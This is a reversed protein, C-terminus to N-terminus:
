VILSMDSDDEPMSALHGSQFLLCSSFVPIVIHDLVGCITQITNWWTCSYKIQSWSVGSAWARKVSHGRDLVASQLHKVLVRLSVSFCSDTVPNNIVVTCNHKFMFPITNRYSKLVCCNFGAGRPQSLSTVVFFSSMFVM